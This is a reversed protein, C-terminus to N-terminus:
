VILKSLANGMVDRRGYQHELVICRSGHHHELGISNSKSTKEQLHKRQGLLNVDIRAM